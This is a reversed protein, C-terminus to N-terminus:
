PRVAGSYNNVLGRIIEIEAETFGGGFAAFNFTFEGDYEQVPTGNANRAGLLFTVSPVFGAVTDGDMGQLGDNVILRLDNAAVRTLVFFGSGPNPITDSSTASTSADLGLATVALDDELALEHWSSIGPNGYTGSLTNTGFIAVRTESCNLIISFSNLTFNPGSSPAFGTNVYTTSADLTNFGSADWGAGVNTMQNLTKACYTAATESTPSIPFVRDWRDWLGSAKADVVFRNWAEIETPNTISAAAFYAAASPDVGSSSSRKKRRLSM